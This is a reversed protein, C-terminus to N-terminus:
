KKGRADLTALLRAAAVNDPQEALVGRLLKRASDAYRERTEPRNAEGAEKLEIAALGVRASLDGPKAALIARLQGEAGAVDGALALAAALRARIKPDKGRLALLAGLQRVAAPGDGEDFAMQALRDHAQALLPDQALAARYEAAAQDYRQLGHYLEGLYLHPDPLTPDLREAEEFHEVAQADDGMRWYALGLAAQFVPVQPAERILAELHDIARKPADSKEIVSLTDRFKDRDAAPMGRYPDHIREVIRRASKLDAATPDLPLAADIEALAEADHGTRHLALALPLRPRPDAPALRVADRLPALAEAFREAQVLAIGLRLAPEPSAPALARARSLEALGEEGGGTGSLRCLGLLYHARASEPGSAVGARAERTLADLRGCRRAALVEHRLASWREPDAALAARFDALARCPEDAGLASLGAAERGAARQEPSAAACGALVAFLPLARAARWAPRPGAPPRQVRGRASSRSGRPWTIDRLWPARM